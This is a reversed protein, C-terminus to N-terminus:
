RYSCYRHKYDELKEIHPFRDKTTFILNVGYSIIADHLSTNMCSDYVIRTTVGEEELIRRSIMSALLERDLQPNELEAGRIAVDVESHIRSSIDSIKRGAVLTGFWANLLDSRRLKSVLDDSMESLDIITTESTTTFGARSKIAAECDVPINRTIKLICANISVQLTDGDGVWHHQVLLDELDSSEERQAANPVFQDVEESLLFDDAIAEFCFLVLASVLLMMRLGTQLLLQLQCASECNSDM